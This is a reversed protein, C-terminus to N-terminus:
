SNSVKYGTTLDVINELPEDNFYRKFNNYTLHFVIDGTEKDYNGGSVHPTILVNEMQWLLHDSPLPEQEFVDLAAGMLKGSRLCEVLAETDIAEGRGVNIILADDKMLELMEKNILHITDSTRPLSLAVIDAKPLIDKLQESTYLEDMYDPKNATTRKIGMTYAGLKKMRKAFNSGIDGLGICLVKTNEVYKIHGVNSWIAQPQRVKYKLLNKYFALVTGVMYESIPMGYAGTANTIIAGEALIGPKCYPDVGASHTQIWKLNKAQKLEEPSVNGFIVTARELQELTAPHSKDCLIFECEPAAEKLAALEHAKIANPILIVEKKM